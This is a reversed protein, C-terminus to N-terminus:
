EPVFVQGDFRLRGSVQRSEEGESRPVVSLDDTMYAYTVMHQEPHYTFDLVDGCRNPHVLCSTFAVVVEENEEENAEVEEEVVPFAGYHFSIGADTLEVVTAVNVCCTSCGLSFGLCMYLVSASDSRLIHIEQYGEGQGCMGGEEDADEPGLVHGRGQADRYHIVKRMSHFTGGTNEDWSYIRLRGDASRALGFFDNPVLHDLLSDGLLPLELVKRLCRAVRGNVDVSDAWTEEPSLSDAWATVASLERLHVSLSDETRDQAWGLAPLACAMWVLTHKMPPIVVLPLCQPAEQAQGHVRLGQGYREALM